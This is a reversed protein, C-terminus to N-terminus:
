IVIPVIGNRFKQSTKKMKQHQLNEQVNVTLQLEARKLVNADSM